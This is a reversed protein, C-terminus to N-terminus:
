RGTVRLPSNTPSLISKGGGVGMETKKVDILLALVAAIIMILSCIVFITHYALIQADLYMLITATQMVAPTHVNVVSHASIALMNDEVSMNLLTAFIAIGFAGSINRVLALVASASKVASRVTLPRPHM